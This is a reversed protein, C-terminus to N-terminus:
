FFMSCNSQQTNLTGYVYNPATQDTLQYSSALGTNQKAVWAVREPNGTNTGGFIIIKKAMTIFGKNFLSTQHIHRFILRTVKPM